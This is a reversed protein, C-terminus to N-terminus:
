QGPLKRLYRSLVCARIIGGPGVTDGVSQYIGCREPLHVDVEMDDLSGPLISIIVIDAASLAKKM